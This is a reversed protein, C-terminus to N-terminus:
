ASSSNRCQQLRKALRELAARALMGDERGLRKKARVVWDLGCTVEPNLRFWERVQRKIRNRGVARKDVRKSVVLGLRGRSLSNPKVWIQFLENGAQYRLNFVSSFEDTKILRDLRSFRNTNSAM